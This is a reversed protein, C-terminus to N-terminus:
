SALANPLLNHRQRNNMYNDVPKDVPQPYSSSFRTAGAVGLACWGWLVRIRQRGNTTRPDPNTGPKCIKRAGSVEHSPLGSTRQDPTKPHQIAVTAESISQPNNALNLASTLPTEHLASVLRIASFPGLSVPKALAPARDTPAPDDGGPAPAPTLPQGDSRQRSTLACAQAVRRIELPYVPLAGSVPALQDGHM